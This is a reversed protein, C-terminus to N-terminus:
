MASHILAPIFFLTIKVGCLLINTHEAPMIQLRNKSVCLWASVNCNVEYNKGLQNEAVAKLDQEHAAPVVRCAYLIISVFGLLLTLVPLSPNKAM